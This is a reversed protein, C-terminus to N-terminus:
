LITYAYEDHNTRREAHHRSHRPQENNSPSVPERKVHREPSRREEKIRHKDNEWKSSKRDDSEHASHQLRHICRYLFRYVIMLWGNHVSQNNVRIYWTVTCLVIGVWLVRNLLEVSTKKELKMCSCINVVKRRHKAPSRDRSRSRHRERSSKRHNHKHRRRDDTSDDRDRHSPM